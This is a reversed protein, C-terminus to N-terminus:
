GEEIIDKIRIPMLHQRNQGWPGNLAVELWVGDM